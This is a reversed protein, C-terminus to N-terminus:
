KRKEFKTVPNEIPALSQLYTFIAEIDSEKMGAYMLWPMPSNLDGPTLVTSKYNSDAYQKFRQVFLEKTWSGIGTNKDPTINASRVAGAPQKFEMGGGFESGPIIAGKEFKSHCDVCGAANVLYAGYAVLNSEDPKPQPHAEKPMTNVLLSVPFDLEREATKNQIPTLSRIYAIISYIDEKDMQGYHQYPMVSFLANGEKDVGSTIARYIEADTWNALRYPTINPSYINGPFGMEKGFKEGGGGLNGSLPGAFQSWDRTSHCDMCVAVSHALYRGREIREATQEVKVDIPQDIDPLFVKVYTGATLVGIIILALLGLLVKYIRKM